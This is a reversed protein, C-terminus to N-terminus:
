CRSKSVVEKLFHQLQDLSNDLTYKSRVHQKANEAMEKFKHPREFFDIIRDALGSADASPVLKAYKGSDSLERAGNVDSMIVPKGYAMAEMPANPMGEFLSPLVFLDCGKIHGIPQHIYGAFCVHDQLGQAQVQQSLAAKEKGDGILYLLLNPYRNKIMGVAEILYKFGKEKALRGLGLIVKRNPFEDSFDIPVIDDQFTMGNYIVRIFEGAMVGQRIYHDKITATNTIVGQSFHNMLYTHKWMSSKQPSGSRVLVPINRAWKAALGAVALQRLNVIIADFKNKKIFRYLIFSHYISIDSLINCSFVTLGKKQAEQMLISNSPAAFVVENGAEQLDAATNIFWREGGGFKNKGITHVMLIKM